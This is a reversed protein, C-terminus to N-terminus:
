AAARAESRRPEDGDSWAGGRHPMLNNGSASTNIDVNVDSSAGTTVPADPLMSPAIPERMPNWACEYLSM